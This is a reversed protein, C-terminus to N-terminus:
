IVSKGAFADGFDKRKKLTPKGYETIMNHLFASETVTKPNKIFTNKGLDQFFSM